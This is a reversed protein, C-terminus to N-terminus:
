FPLSDDELPPEWDDAQKVAGQPKMPELEETPDPPPMPCEEPGHNPMAKIRKVRTKDDYGSQKEISTEITIRGGMVNIEMERENDVDIERDMIGLARFLQAFKWKMNEVITFTDFVIQKDYAGGQIQFQVAYYDNGKQSRKKELEILKAPYDGAPIVGGDPFDKENVYM